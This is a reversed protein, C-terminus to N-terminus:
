IPSSILSAHGRKTSLLFHSALQHHVSCFHCSALKRHCLLSCAERFAAIADNDVRLENNLTQLLQMVSREDVKLGQMNSEIHELVTMCFTYVMFM